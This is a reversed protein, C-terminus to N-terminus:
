AVSPIKRGEIQDLQAELQDVQSGTSEMTRRVKRAVKIAEVIRYREMDDIPECELLRELLEQEIGHWANAWSEQNTLARADSAKRLQESLKALRFEKSM